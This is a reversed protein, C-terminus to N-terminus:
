QDHDAIEKTATTRNTLRDNRAYFDFQQIKVSHTYNSRIHHMVQTAWNPFRSIETGNLAQNGVIILPPEEAKIEDVMQQQWGPDRILIADDVYLYRGFTARNTMVNFGPCYPFCLVSDDERTYEDIVRITESFLRKEGPSVFVDIGNAAEFKETRGSSLAISGTSPQRLGFWAYLCIHLTLLFGVASRRLPRLTNLAPILGRSRSRFGSRRAFLWGGLYVGVLTVYGPMFQSLHAGDPRFFFFQPFASYALGLLALIGVAEGETVPRKQAVQQVIKSCGSAAIIMLSLLPLYTLIGLLREPGVELISSLPTRALTTGVGEPLGGEAGGFSGTRALGLVWKVMEFPRLFLNLFPSLFGQRYALLLLPLTPTLVGAGIPLIFRTALSTAQEPQRSHSVANITLASIVIFIMGLGIDPRIYFSVSAILSASFILKRAVRKRALVIVSVFLMNAVVILPIYTKHVTGPVLLNILAVAVALQTRGTQIQVTLYALLSTLLALSFFYIRLVIFSVGTAKFLLVLPYFWMPGYGLKIDLFPRDGALLRVTVLLVSGEDSYTFGCNYYQGYYVLGVAALTTLAMLDSTKFRTADPRTETAVPEM